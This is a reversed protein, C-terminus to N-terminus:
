TDMVYSIVMWNSLKKCKECQAYNTQDAQIKEVSRRIVSDDSYVDTELKSNDLEMEKELAEDSVADRVVSFLLRNMTRQRHNNVQRLGIKGDIHM